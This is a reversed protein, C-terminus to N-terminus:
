APIIVTLSTLLVLAAVTAVVPVTSRKPGALYLGCVGGLVPVVVGLIIGGVVAAFPPRGIVVGLAFGVLGASGVSAVAMWTIGHQAPPREGEPRTPQLLPVLKRSVPRPRTRRDGAFWTAAVAIMLVSSALLVITTVIEVASNM